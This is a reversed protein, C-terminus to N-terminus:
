PAPYADIETAKVSAWVQTGVELRLDAVAAPTVEAVLAPAGALRLRVRDYARSVSVVECPWVNRASGEPHTRHVSVAAPRVVALVPGALQPDAVALGGGGDLTIHGDHAHGRLLNTGLLSAVFPTAPQAVLEGLPADQVVHGAELVLVRDALLMADLPDHTVLLACGDFEALQQALRVRVEDRTSADLAAMPEDLLLLRPQTVLARAVAVRQAQGGSVAAPRRDALADIGLHRLVDLARTRADRKSTGRAHLGFAVNDLVSLHPFLAYDQFVLGVNRDEPSVCAAQSEWVRGDVDVTGEDIRELGALARLLTSKGSGNPGLVAVVEGPAFTADIRLAFDGRRVTFDAHVTM